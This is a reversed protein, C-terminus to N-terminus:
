IQPAFLMMKMSEVRAGPWSSGCRMAFRSRWTKRRMASATTSRPTALQSASRLISPTWCIMWTAKVLADVTGEGGDAMPIKIVVAGPMEQRVAEHIIDCAKASRMNGKFSDPAVVIKMTGDRRHQRFEAM